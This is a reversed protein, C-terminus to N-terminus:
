AIRSTIRSRLEHFLNSARTLLGPQPLDRWSAAGYHIAYSQSSAQRIGSAFVESPLILMNDRLEQRENRYRFGYKEAVMALIDPAIIKDHYGGGDLTFHLDKYYDLCDRLFPHGCVGGLVAAEIGIGPKPTNPQRSSGDTNLLKRTGKLRVLKDHYEVSTVFDWSLFDDFRKKVLVDSDLYIGGETYLAFLRIYDAAFAWKRAQYAEFAFTSSQIDFRSCDWKVLEYDPMVERWSALCRQLADPMQEGSLWCYHIKRPIM